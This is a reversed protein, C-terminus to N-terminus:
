MKRGQLLKKDPLCFGELPFHYPSFFFILLGTAATVLFSVLLILDNIYKAKFKNQM